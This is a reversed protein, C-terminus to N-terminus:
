VHEQSDESDTFVIPRQIIPAHDKTHLIMADILRAKTIGTEKSLQRIYDRAENSVRVYITNTTDSSEAKM